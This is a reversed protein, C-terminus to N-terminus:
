LRYNRRYNYFLRVTNEDIIRVRAGDAARYILYGYVEGNYGLIEASIVAEGIRTKTKMEESTVETWGNDVLINKDKLKYLFAVAGPQFSGASRRTRKFVTYDRWNRRLESENNVKLRKLNGRTSGKTGGTSGTCATIGFAFALAIAILGLHNNKTM